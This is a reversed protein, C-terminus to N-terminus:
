LKTACYNVFPKNQLKQNELRSETNQLVSVM